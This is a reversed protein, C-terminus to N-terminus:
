DNLADYILLQYKSIVKEGNKLGSHLYTTTPMQKYISIERTEIQCNGKYVMVFYKNKDFIVARSPIAIKQENEEYKVIINAFMEPKLEFDKNQLVVRGKLVKSEPDIVNFIKDIRGKFIKDPYSVTMIEVEYGERVRAIDSEYINAIVWVDDLNSITFIPKIDETRLEMNLTVDKSVVFGSAPAVVNYFSANGVNYMSLVEKSRYLEAQANEWEKKANVLEVESISGTKYLEQAIQYNKEAVRLNAEAMKNQNAFGAIEPSRIVALVQGKQVYDGLNAYLEKVFGGVLPYVKTVEDEDFSVKGQLVLENAVTQTKVEALEIKKALTDTLCFKAETNESAEKKGCAIFTAIIFIFTFTKIINHM